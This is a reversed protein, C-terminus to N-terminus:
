IMFGLSVSQFKPAYETDLINCPNYKVYFNVIPTTITGMLDITVPNHHLDKYKDKHKEGDLRYRTKVSSHSTCNIVPGLSFGWDKKSYSYMIPFILSFTKVRSFKPDAGEPLPVVSVTGDNAKVFQNRNTMRWNSWEVGCGFSFRNGDRWPHIGWDVYMGINAGGWLNTKVVDNNGTAGNFGLFVHFESDYLPRRARKKSFKNGFGFSFLDGTVSTSEYNGDTNRLTTQYHYDPQRDTGDVEVQLLSDNSVVTVKHANYVTVTDDPEAAQAISATLLAAMLIM